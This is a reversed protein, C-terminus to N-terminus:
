CSHKQANHSKVALSYRDQNDKTPKWFFKSCGAFSCKIKHETTIHRELQRRYENKKAVFMVFMHLSLLFSFPQDLTCHLIIESTSTTITM